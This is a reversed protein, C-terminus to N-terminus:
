LVLKEPNEEIGIKALSLYFDHTPKDPDWDNLILAEETSIKKGRTRFQEYVPYVWKGRRSHAFWAGRKETRLFLQPIDCIGADVTWARRLSDAFGITPFMDIDLPLCIECDKSVLSLAENRAVDFRFPEVIKRACKVGSKQLIEWTGDASGTDLVVVEDAERVASLWRRIGRIENKCIAYVCVKRM